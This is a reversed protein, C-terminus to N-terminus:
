AGVAGTFRPKRQEIWTQRVQKMALGLLTDMELPLRVVREEEEEEEEGPVTSESEMQERGQERRCTTQHPANATWHGIVGRVEAHCRAANDEGVVADDAGVVEGGAAADLVVLVDVDAPAEDACLTPTM